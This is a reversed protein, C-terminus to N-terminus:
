EHAARVESAATFIAALHELGHRDAEDFRALVPSDIDLVGLLTDGQMLPIVIESQSAADCAIHGPFQHVDPVVLTKRTAAATGCVGKGLPIRVCAPKGQFPGVVLEQAPDEAPNRPRADASRLFYFGVWNIGPLADFLLAATNAANAILDREGALLGKLEGALSAYDAAKDRFDYRRSTFEM